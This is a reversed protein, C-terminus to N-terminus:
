VCPVACRGSSSAPRLVYTASRMSSDAPTVTLTLTNGVLVGSFTAPRAPEISIPGVEIRYTGSVTFTGNRDVAPAPFRGHGCGAVFDSQEAVSLCVGSDGTWRSGALSAPETPAATCTMTMSCAIAAAFIRGPSSVRTSRRRRNMARVAERLVWTMVGRPPTTVVQFVEKGDDVIVFEWNAMGFPTIALSASGTCNANV